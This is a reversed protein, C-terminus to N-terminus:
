RSKDRRHEGQREAVGSAERHHDCGDGRRPARAAHGVQWRHRRAAAVIPGSGAVCSTHRCWVSRRSVRGSSPPPPSPLQDHRHASGHAERVQSVVFGFAAGLGRGIWRGMQPGFAYFLPGFAQLEKGVTLKLDNFFAAIKRGQAQLGSDMQEFATQTAGTVDGMEAINDTLKQASGGTLQMVATLAESSGLMKALKEDSGGAADQLMELTGQLGLTEIATKGSEIGQEKLASAMDTTPKILATQVAKWQTSVESTNGTVGTLTAFVANLDEVKIGLAAAGPVVKGISASLEPFTTQGLRVTTFALDSVKQTMEQSTDGYGKTVASLLGVSSTLDTVGATAAKQATEMFAFVNDQPVGASLSNYLGGIAEDTSIGFEKAFDRADQTMANKADESIGPMLTFVERMKTDLQAFANIGDAAFGGLAFGAATAGATAATGLGAVVRQTNSLNQDFVRTDLGLTAYLRAIPGPM